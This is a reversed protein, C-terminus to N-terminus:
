SYEEIEVVSFFGNTFEIVGDQHFALHVADRNVRCSKVIYDGAGTCCKRFKLCLQQSAEALVYHDIKIGVGGAGAGGLARQSQQDFFFEM